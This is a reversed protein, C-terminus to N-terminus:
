HEPDLSSIKKGGQGWRVRNGGHERSRGGLVASSRGVELGITHRQM